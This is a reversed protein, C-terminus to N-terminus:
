PTKEELFIKRTVFNYVPVFVSAFVKVILYHIPMYKTGIWMIFQNILLGGVSLLIFICMEKVKNSQASKFVFMMSLIYNVIVSATFSIAAAILVDVNLMEKLFTLVGYDIVTAIVGVIGFKVLQIFLKKTM